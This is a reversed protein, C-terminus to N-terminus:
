VCTFKNLFDQVLSSESEVLGAFEGFYEIKGASLFIVEDCLFKAEKYDHTVFYVPIGKEILLEKFWNLIDYRLIADLQAFPEDMLLVSPNYVIARAIAVRQKEGGSVNQPLKNLLSSIDFLEMIKAVEEVIRERKWKRIKLPYAINEFVTLHPFLALDQSVMGLNRNEVLIEDMVINNITIQGSYKQLGAVCRLLTTKGAGSPGIIALSKKASSFSVGELIRHSDFNVSLNKISLM